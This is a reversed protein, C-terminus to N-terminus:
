YFNIYTNLLSTAVLLSGWIMTKLMNLDNPLIIYIIYVM